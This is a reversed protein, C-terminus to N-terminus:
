PEARFSDIANNIREKLTNLRGEHLLGIAEETLQKRWFATREKPTLGSQQLRTRAKHLFEAFEAFDDGYTKAIDRALLATYAPLGGGFATFSLRGSASQAPVSFNGLEPETVVNVLCPAEAAIQRNLAASNTAAVVLFCDSVDGSEYGRLVLKIKGDAALATLNEDAAPAIVTVNAGAAVLTRTKRLAVKGGGIVTCRKGNLNIMAPYRFLNEEM